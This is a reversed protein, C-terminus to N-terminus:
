GLVKAVVATIDDQQARGASFAGAASFLATVIESAPRHRNAQAVELVRAHGLERGDPSETEEIGDTVMLLLDGPHLSLEPAGRMPGPMMGLPIGTAALNEVHGDARLLYCQHGGSAYSLTRATPDIRAIFLTVFQEEGCDAVLFTNLRTLLDSVDQTRLLLARLCARTQSMLLAPGLGHGSVDGIVLGLQGGAMPLYDFYDGGAQEAPHSAGAIDFGSVAPAFTPYYRQQIARALRLEENTHLVSREAELRAHRETADRIFGAFLRRGELLLENLMLDMRFTTGDRRRGILERVVGLPLEAEGPRLGGQLASAEYGAFPPLLTAVPHGVLEGVAYGFMAEISANVSEIAGDEDVTFIGDTASEFITRLRSESNRLAKEANRQLTVDRAVAVYGALTGDAERIPAITSDVDYLTSDKKRDVFAGRWLGGRSITEWLQQYFGADHRDSKLLRPNKGVVEHRSYGTMLEFAPNVHTITADADTIMIGEGASNLASALRLREMEQLRTREAVEDRLASNAKVLDATRESVARALRSRSRLLAAEARRRRNVTAVVALGTLTYGIMLVQLNLFSEPAARGGYVGVGRSTGWVAVAAMLLTASTVGLLEFRLALWILLFLPFYLLDGASAGELLGGFLMLSVLVLALVAFGAELGRARSSPIRSGGRLAILFPTVIVMGAIDGLWWTVWNLTLSPWPLHSAAKLTFVGVTAAPVSAVAAVAAFVFVGRADRFYAYATSGKRRLLSVGILAELTNGLGIAVAGPFTVTTTLNALTAALWIGPLAWPGLLLVGALAIGSPPWIATANGPPIAFRLGVFAAVLYCAVLGAVELVLARWTKRPGASAGASKVRL